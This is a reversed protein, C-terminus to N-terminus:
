GPGTNGGAGRGGARARKTDGRGVGGDEPGRKVGASTGAAAGPQFHGAQPNMGRGGGRGRAAAGGRPLQSGGGGGRPIGLQVPPTTGRKAPQPQQPQAPAATTATAESSPQAQTQAHTVTPNSFRRAAGGRITNQTAGGASSGPRPISTSAQGSVNRSAGPGASSPWQLPPPQANTASTLESVNSAEPPNQAVLAATPNGAAPQAQKYTYHTPRQPLSPHPPPFSPPSFHKPVPIFEEYPSMLRWGDPSPRRPPPPLRSPSALPPSHPGPLYGPSGGRTWGRWVGEENQQEHSTWYRVQSTPFRDPLPSSPSSHHPLSCVPLPSVAAPGTSNSLSTPQPTPKAAAAAAAPTQVQVSQAAQPKANQAGQWVEVVATQPTEEAARKVFDLKAQADNKRKEVLNLKMQSKKEALTTAEAKAKDIRQELEAMQQSLNSELKEREAKVKQEINRSIISKVTSNSQIFNKIEIDSSPLNTSSSSAEGQNSAPQTPAGEAVKAELDKIHQSQASRVREMEAEHDAKLQTVISEHEQRIRDIEEDHEKKLAEKAVNRAEKLKNNLQTKMNDVRQTYKDEYEQIKQKFEAELEGRISLGQGPEAPVESPAQQPTAEANMANQRLTELETQAANLDEQLKDIQEQMGQDNTTTDNDGGVTKNRLSELEASQEDLHSRLEQVTGEYSQVQQRLQELEKQLPASQSDPHEESSQTDQLGQIRIAQEQVTANLSNVTRELEAAKSSHLAARSEAEQVKQQLADEQVEGEEQETPAQGNVDMADSHNPVTEGNVQIDSPQDKGQTLAARAENLAQQGTAVENRAESLETRVKELEQEVAQKETQLTRIRDNLQNSRKKFQEQVSAITTKRTDQATEEKAKEIEQAFGDVKEQLGQKESSAEDCHQQLTELKTKLEKMEAPDVRDYKSLIDQTRKQWRDRDEQLLKMEGQATEQQNEMERVSTQLPQLQAYLEDVRKSKEVLQAQAQRAENRLTVTSERYVNLENITEALKSHSQQGQQRQREQELRLRAENLQSEAYNLQQKLRRSEQLSLEYQVDVIDKERRLYNIIEQSRQSGPESSPSEDQTEQDARRSQGLQAIRSNLSNLQDHLLQNQKDVDERRRKLETIENELQERTSSWSEESQALQARATEAEAKASSVELKTENFQSRVEQLNKAAEAHKVLENEYSQQARQAIDAQAKLDEQRLSATECYRESEDKIQALQAELESRQRDLESQHSDTRTQLESLQSHADSLENSIEDRRRQLDQIREDKESAIKEADDRYQEYTEELERLSDESAQSINKYQEVQERANELEGRALDLERRLDAAEISLEQERTLASDDAVNAANTATGPRPTPRPQLAQAHEQANRLEIKLEEVRAQMQDRLTRAATLEEKTSSLGRMLDDIRTRNQEQDYERRLAANKGSEVEEDLKQKVNRIEAELAEVQTQLRRRQESDSAERESALKQNNMVLSNLRGREETLATNDENLRAEIRKWLDKEAKLNANESRLGDSVERAQILDEAAQQTRVDQKAAIEAYSQSRKQLEECETKMMNYNSQLMEYREQAMSVQSRARALDGQLSGKDKSLGNIQERLTEHDTAAERKYADFHSQMEKLLRSEQAANPANPSGKNDNAQPRTPTAIGNITEGFMSDLDADRPIQGRHTLMRRYIDREKVFSESQLRMTNMQDKMQELRDRLDGLEVQDKEQQNQKTRAEEGEMQEGLQRTLNLLKTNQEQLEFVNRFTALRQSIFRGTDTMGEFIQEDTEGTAARRLAQQEATSLEVGETRVQVEVTLVKVQTSLDRLQQRLLEGEREHSQAQTQWKRLEKRMADRDQNARTVSSAIQAIDSELRANNEQLDQIEPAKNELDTMIEEITASYKASRRKEDDLEAKARNLDSYLQTMTLGGRARSGPTGLAPSGSRLPTGFAGTADGRQRPTGPPPPSRLAGTQANAELREIQSELEEVKQEAVERAEHETELESQIHSVEEAADQKTKEVEDDLEEVRHRATQASQEQLQALRRASDLEARFGEETRLADDQLRQIKALYEESKRGAEDIRDRLLNETRKLSNINTNADENLRQLEALRANKDKRFKSFESSKNKLEGDLWENNRKLLEVEQQLSSERFKASNLINDAQQQKEELSALERRLSVVKLQSSSLEEAVKDHATTKNDVLAIAERKSSELRSVQARM